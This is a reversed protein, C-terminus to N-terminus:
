CVTFSQTALTTKVDNIKIVLNGGKLSQSSKNLPFIIETVHKGVMILIVAGLYAGLLYPICSLLFPPLPPSPPPPIGTEKWRSACQDVKPFIVVPRNAEIYHSKTVKEQLRGDVLNDM